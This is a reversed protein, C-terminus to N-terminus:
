DAVHRATIDCSIPAITYSRREREPQARRRAEGQAIKMLIGVVNRVVTNWPQKITRRGHIAAVVIAQCGSVIKTSVVIYSGRSKLMVDATMDRYPILQM